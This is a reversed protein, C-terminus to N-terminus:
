NHSVGIYGSLIGPRVSHSSADSAKLLRWDSGKGRVVGKKSENDGFETVVQCGCMASAFSTKRDSLGRVLSPFTNQVLAIKAHSYM